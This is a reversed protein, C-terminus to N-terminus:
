EVRSWRRETKQNPPIAPVSYAESEPWGWAIRQRARQCIICRRWGKYGKEYVKGHDAYAHGKPCHTKLSNKNRLKDTTDRNNLQRPGTWLHEPNCCRRVDCTHCVDHGAPIPGKSLTYALRHARWRRCHYSIEGYGNYTLTANFLWCGNEDITCKSKLREMEEADTLKRWRGARTKETIPM